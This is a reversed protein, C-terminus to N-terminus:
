NFNSSFRDFEEDTMDKVDKGLGRVLLNPIKDRWKLQLKIGAFTADNDLCIFINEYEKHVKILEEAKSESLNVGLLAATHFKTAMRIASMQDEFIILYKSRRSFKYWAM